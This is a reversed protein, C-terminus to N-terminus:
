SHYGTSMSCWGARKAPRLLHTVKRPARIFLATRMSLRRKGNIVTSRTWASRRASNQRCSRSPTTASRCCGIAPKSPLMRASAFAAGGCRLCWRCCTSKSAIPTARAKKISFQTSSKLSRWRTRQILKLMPGSMARRCSGSTSKFTSRRASRRLARPKSRRGYCRKMRAPCTTARACRTSATRFSTRTSSPRWRGSRKSSSPRHYPSASIPACGAGTTFGTRLLSNLAPM